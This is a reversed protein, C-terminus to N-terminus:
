GRPRKANLSLQKSMVLYEDPSPPPFAGLFAPKFFVIKENVNEQVVPLM